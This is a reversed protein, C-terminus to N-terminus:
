RDSLESLDLGPHRRKGHVLVDVSFCFVTMEPWIVRNCCMFVGTSNSSYSVGYALLHSTNKVVDYCGHTIKKPTMMFFLKSCNLYVSIVHCMFLLLIVESESWLSCSIVSSPPVNGENTGNMISVSNDPVLFPSDDFM